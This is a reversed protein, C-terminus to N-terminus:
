LKLLKAESGGLLPRGTDEDGEPRHIAFFRPVLETRVM